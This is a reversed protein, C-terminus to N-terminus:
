QETEFSPDVLWSLVAVPLIVAYLFVGWFLGNFDEYTAPVWVGHDSAIAAYVVGLLTFATFTAYALNMARSRLGLEFEDLESPVEAVIRQLASKILSAVCILATLILSYGLISQLGTGSSRLVLAGM